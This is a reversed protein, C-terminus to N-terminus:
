KKTMVTKTNDAYSYAYYDYYYTWNSMQITLDKDITAVVPTEPHEYVCFTYGNFYSTHDFTVTMKEMDVEGIIDYSNWIPDPILIHTDDLKKVEVDYTLDFEAWDADYDILYLDYGSHHASYTGALDDITLKVETAGGWVFVDNGNAYYEKMTIKGGNQDGTFSFGDSGVYYTVNYGSNDTTGTPVGYWDCGENWSYTTRQVSQLTGDAAPTFYFDYGEVSFWNKLAYTGDTYATLTAAWTEATDGQTFTGDATWSIAKEGWWFTDYYFYDLDFSGCIYLEGRKESGTFAPKESDISIYFTEYGAYDMGTAVGTYKTGSTDDQKGNAITVSGDEELAFELDYGKVGQWDKVMYSNDDYAILTAAYNYGGSGSQYTGEARWTEVRSRVFTVAAYESDTYVAEGTAEYVADSAAKVYFTFEGNPVGRLTAGPSSITTHSTEETGDTYYYEYSTANEVEAWEIRITSGDPTAVLQMPTALPIVACTTATIEAIPSNATAPDLLPSYAIVKLTYTTMPRLKNIRVSTKTTVDGVVKNNDPDYLQYSYQTSGEVGEWSFFLSTPTIDSSVVQPTPLPTKDAAEDDSCGALPTACLMSALLWAGSKRTIM